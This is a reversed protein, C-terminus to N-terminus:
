NHEGFKYYGGDNLHHDIDGLRIFVDPDLSIRIEKEPETRQALQYIQQGLRRHDRWTEAGVFVHQDFVFAKASDIKPIAAVQESLQYSREPDFSEYNINLANLEESLEESGALVFPDPADTTEPSGDERYLPVLAFAGGLTEWDFSAPEYYFTGKLLHGFTKDPNHSTGCGMLSNMSFLCILALIIKKM